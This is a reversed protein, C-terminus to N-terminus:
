PSMPWPDPPATAGVVVTKVRARTTAALLERLDPTAIMSVEDVVILPRQDLQLESRETHLQANVVETV